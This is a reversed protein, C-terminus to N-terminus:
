GRNFVEGSLPVLVFVVFPEELRIQITGLPEAREEEFPEHCEEVIALASSAILMCEVDNLATRVVDANVLSRGLVHDFDADLVALIGALRSPADREEALRALGHVEDVTLDEPLLSRRGEFVMFPEYPGRGSDNQIGMGCLSALMDLAKAESPAGEATAAGALTRLARTLATYSAGDYSSLTRWRCTVIADRSVSPARRQDHADGAPRM